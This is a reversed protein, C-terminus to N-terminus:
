KSKKLEPLVKFVQTLENQLEPVLRQCSELSKAKAAEELSQCLKALRLIGLSASPSRLAHASKQLEEFSSIRIARNLAVLLPPADEIYMDILENLMEDADDGAMDRLQQWIQPDILAESSAEPQTQTSLVPSPKSVPQTKTKVPTNAKVPAIATSPQESPQHNPPYADQYCGLALKITEPYIPKSLYDNMGAAFCAQQDERRAHATMAVIWPQHTLKLDRRIRQTAELGDMEPMQVDMFILDYSQRQLAELAEQGNNAIDARYGLRQLLQLAIKQNVAVDEVLLIKLPLTQAFSQEQEPSKDLPLGSFPPITSKADDPISWDGQALHLLANVLQYQRVPKNLFASFGVSAQKIERSNKGKASLIVMPLHKYTPMAHIQRALQSPSITLRDIDLIALNITPQNLAQQSYLIDQIASASDSTQVQLGLAKMRLALSQRLNDNESLLLARKGELEALPLTAVQSASCDVDVLITFYFTTGQGLQSEVWMRGQMLESLRKSIVLGLGTGGYRRTMSADAQSFPKFLRELHDQAIGVGTDKIAFQIEYTSAFAPTQPLEKGRVSVVVEGTHTFKVANSLLNWVIQRLRTVDGLLQTPLRPDLFYILELGKATAQPALVELAEELCSRLDFPVKELELKGSEIKSFDLIDNIITLLANSSNRITEVYDFQESNLPTDLLLGSMGIIANMPTRIEHSVMALFSGKAENAVEAAQKAAILEENQHTLLQAVHTEQELLQAQTLAVGMQDALHKLFDLDLDTWIRPQDCQHVILLGWLEQRVLIPVVLNAKVQFQGLFERHCSQLDSKEIDAIATIQGSRYHDLYGKQLCPDHIDQGLTISWGPVVAEQVVTGSGDAELQFILVRNVQLIKQVETVTTQLIEGPQLSQRVKESILKLLVVHKYQQKLREESQKRETIDLHTGVMRLPRGDMDRNVVRGRDLVWKWSGEKTRMRLECEYYPTKGRLHANLLEHMYPLERPHVLYNRAQTYNERESADYGLMEFWRDSRYIEGTDVNWDWLGEEVAELALNLRQESIQLNLAAESLESQQQILKQNLLQADTLASNKTQIFLLYDSSLDYIPFDSVTLGLTELDEANTMWPSGVFLLSVSAELYLFQGKLQLPYQQSQLLFLAHTQTKLEAFTLACHLANFQFVEQLFCGVLPQPQCLRKIVDGAATIRLSTDLLLHFPFLAAFQEPPLHVPMDM